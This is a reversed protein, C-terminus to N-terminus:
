IQVRWCNKCLWFPGNAFLLQATQSNQWASCTQCFTLVTGHIATASLDLELLAPFANPQAWSAPLTGSLQTFSLNLAKLNPFAAPQHWSIPLSGALGSTALTLSQLRPFSSNDGWADPLNPTSGTLTLNTLSQLCGLSRWSDATLNAPLQTSISYGTPNYAQQWGLVDLLRLECSVDAARLDQYFNSAAKPISHILETGPAPAQCAVYAAWSLLAVSLAQSYSLM